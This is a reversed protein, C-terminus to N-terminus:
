GRRDALLTEALVPVEALARLVDNLHTCGVTGKLKQLVALRLEPLPTGVMQDVNVAALPCEVFPLVRPDAWVSLLEGDLSATADVQYEHVAIRGGGPTTASDQFFSKVEIVDGVTVDIRRSRRMSVTTIDLLEHWGLPDDSSAVSEVARIDHIFRSTGDPSLASAGPTFGACIGEMRRKAARDGRGNAWEAPWLEPWQSFAFGGVLTAGALDDLLLYLPTGLALEDPVVEAILGRFRGGGRAGVLQAVGPRSPTSAIELITRDPAVRANVLSEDLVTPESGDSPTHLDRARGLLQMETGIGGPWWMDITSTRRVSGPVRAPGGLSPGRVEPAASLDISM